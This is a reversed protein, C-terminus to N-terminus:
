SISYKLVAEIIAEHRRASIIPSGAATTGCAPRSIMDSIEGKFNMSIFPWAGMNEPEEQLWVVKVKEGYRKITVDLADQPLPHIQELRVLAINTGKGEKEFRELVEYYIKGSCLVVIDVKKASASKSMRPDDIVENFKGISLDSISSVAKPYRLLKKPTFVILPKRFPRIVQRRLIHFMQAPTTCNAVILNGGACLSLFREMRGSSHEAGMGEYGHPLLITLGNMANWKDETACLFQDWIIQAGNNFDGFQAEWITLGKPKAYAYGFEFGSVAYESLLSNYISLQAQKKNLNNLLIVEDESDETKLVAHRHSFTGREVDQGSIRVPHGEALLSAYALMEGMGWDLNDSELMKSRDKILKAVKRFFKKDEPLTSIKKGLDLLKNKPYSTDPSSTLEEEKATRYDKWLDELFNAISNTEKEKATVFGDEMQDLQAAKSKAGDHESIVGDAVLQDLYIKYPSPHAAIAKYLKPQTFKPEDGENHGYKRYGLLDIFVDQSFEQRYKIAIRMVQVVAEIDDSNVHFILSQTTKGVDTCYTSTRADLYNTTFGVQNNVVIHVTGGTRYGDLSAMQTVEYVLGQGAIAADGHVLIPLVSKEDGNKEDIRARAIGLVVPDVAELHSPNPALTISVEKGTDATQTKSHGLHYKVDGEIDDESDYEKGIFESFIDSYEKGLIHALTSLRGRHAMGLVVESVGVETGYEIIADLAPILSEGGELSFRKQGVFKKQLFEEFLTAQSIKKLIHLKDENTFKKRNDIEIHERIWDVREPERIYMYEISISSCYTKELHDIIDKLKAPGIGVKTGAEFVTELDENSLGFNALELTPTYTRRERVPNTATFLHGRTRYGHILDLIKFEKFTVQSVGEGGYHSTALDFGAFFLRWSRDVSEPNNIYQAYLADLTKSEVKSLFSLPDM